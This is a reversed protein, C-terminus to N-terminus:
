GLKIGCYEDAHKSVADGAKANEPTDLAQMDEMLQATEKQLQKKGVKGAAAKQQLEAARTLAGKMTGLAGEMVGWEDEVEAPAEDAIQQIVDVAETVDEPGQISAFLSAFDTALLDCYKSGAGPANPDVSPAGASPAGESPQQEEPSSSESPKASATDEAQTEGDGSCGALVSVALLPATLAAITRKM